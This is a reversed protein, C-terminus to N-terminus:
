VIMNDNNERLIESNLEMEKPVEHLTKQKVEEKRSFKPSLKELGDNNSTINDLPLVPIIPM